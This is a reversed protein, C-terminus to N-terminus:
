SSWPPRSRCRRCRRLSIDLLVADAPVAQLLALGSDADGAEGVVVAGAEPLSQLLSKLRLRALAEDDVILLRLPESM